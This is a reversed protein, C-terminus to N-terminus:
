ARNKIATLKQWLGVLQGQVHQVEESRTRMALAVLLLVPLYAAMFGSGLLLLQLLPMGPAFAEMLRALALGALSAVVSIMSLWTYRVLQFGTHRNLLVMLVVTTLVALWGRAWAMSELTPESLLLLWTVIIVTSILDFVFLMKVKGIAICANSVLAFLCFTFFFLAFPRLLSGYEAWNAGLLVRVILEPYVLMFATIPALITTMLVLSLRTRYALDQARDKSDAIAAQLPESGPIIISLAPLTSLERILHYGGLQTPGFLRSIILSDIQSRTFGVVGRLILWKSFGWQVVVHQLTLSPRHAHVRYSGWALILAAVLNGIIIAWHSPHILALAVVVLFSVVKQWVNLMFVPRYNMQKALLMLGPNRLARIPLALAAVRIALTLEPAGFYAALWPAIFFIIGAMSTKIVIDMTWATNLDAETVDSKQIIYHQNGADALIEFFQLGIAVLAVIGFHEPALLRALILTSIIGLSRQIFQIGLLLASSQLVRGTVSMKQPLTYENTPM